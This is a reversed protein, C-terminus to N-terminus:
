TTRSNARPRDVPPSALADAHRLATLLAAHDATGLGAIDFATGHDVSTRVFPLGVTINVGHELGLYKVPILGQDHYQAVVADFEGNRARMFVTDAPWPGSAGIGEAVAARVAPEIVDLDERGFLGNEGAHPNLAAVAIRPATIGGRRLTRHTLRIVDLERETTIADLATRLSQHVTVLVVRLEDDAMMMAYDSTDSLDALMETHGPYPVGALRLAEKNVPATTLARVEGGLALEVGLRVCAFAAAGARADVAGVPLEDPLDCAAVVDIVGPEYAARDVSEIVQVTLPAGTTRCARALAGPDGIVVVPALRRPDAYAKVHDRPRNRM